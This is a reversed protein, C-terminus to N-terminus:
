LTLMTKLNTIVKRRMATSRGAQRLKTDFDYVFPTSLDSLKAAGIFPKVHHKLHIRRQRITSRELGDADSQELWLTWAEEVTKSASARTHTGQQVEHLATVSWAAEAEKKTAFTKIARNGGQDKYDVVWAEFEKNPGWKRKRISAM